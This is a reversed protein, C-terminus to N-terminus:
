TKSPLLHDVFAVRRDANDAGVPTQDHAAGDALSPPHFM